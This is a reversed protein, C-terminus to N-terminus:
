ALPVIVLFAPEAGSVSPRWGTAESPGGAHATPEAPVTDPQATPEAPVTDPAERATPVTM